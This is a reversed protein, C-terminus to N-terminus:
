REDCFLLFCGHADWDVDNFYGLSFKGFTYNELSTCCVYSVVGRDGNTGEYLSEKTDFSITFMRKPFKKKELKYVLSLGQAGTLIAKHQKYVDLCEESTVRGGIDIIKVTYTKGPILRNTVNKFNEDTVAQDFYFFEERNLTSLQTAHNYNKPVTLPFTKLLTCIQTLLQKRAKEKWEKPGHKVIYQLDDTQFCGFEFMKGWHADFNKVKEALEKPLKDTNWFDRKEYGNGRGKLEFFHDIAGHGLVDNDKCYNDFKEKGEKSFVERDTLYFLLTEGDKEVSKWSIFDCM